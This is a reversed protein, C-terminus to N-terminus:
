QEDSKQRHVSLLNTAIKVKEELAQYEEAKTADGHEVRQALARM